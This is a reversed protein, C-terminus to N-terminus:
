FICLSKLIPPPNVCNPNCERRYYINKGLLLNIINFFKNLNNYKKYIYDIFINNFEILNIYEKKYNFKNIGDFFKNIKEKGSNIDIQYSINDNLLLWDALSKHYISVKQNTIDLFLGIKRKISNYERQNLHLIDKLIIEDIPDQYAVLVELFPAMKNYEDEDKILRDFFNAYIGNLEKPFKDFQTIDINGKKVEKFFVKIYLMNAESKELIAQAIAEKNQTDKPINKDILKKCDNKNREDDVTLIIPNLSSLKQRIVPDPRSTIILKVYNPLNQFEPSNLLKLLEDGNTQYAEDIADILLIYNRNEQPRIEVLPNFIIKEFFENLNKISEIDVSEIRQFFGDIHRGLHFALTKIMIIPNNRSDPQDYKCFHIGVVDKLSNALYASIASKGYGAEAEIHLIKSDPHNKIWNNVEEVIWERGVINSHLAFDMKFEIPKLEKEFRAQNGEFELKKEGKLVQIIEQVKEKLLEPDDKKVIDELDLHQLRIISLPPTDYKLMIPIIEKKLRTALSIENFCYSQDNPTRRVSHPTIFLLVKKSVKIAEELKFEWDTGIGLIDTDIIVSYDEEELLEKIKNIYKSFEDHGYSFFIDKKMEKKEEM